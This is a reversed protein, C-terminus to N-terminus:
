FEWHVPAQPDPSYSCFTGTRITSDLHRGLTPNAAAISNLAAKISKTVSIRAREAPSGSPRDRGGLGVARALERTLADREARARSAREPDNFREAESLEGELEDLRTRYAAKARDDLLPEVVRSSSATVDANKWGDRSPKPTAGNVLDLAFIERHPNALLTALYRLGGRDKLRSVQGQYDLTWYEGERKFVYRQSPSSPDGAVREDLVVTPGISGPSWSRPMEPQRVAASYNPPKPRGKMWSVAWVTVLVVVVILVVLWLLMGLMMGVMGGGNM